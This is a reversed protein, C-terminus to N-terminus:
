RLERHNRGRFAFHERLKLFQTFQEAARVRRAEVLADAFRVGGACAIPIPIDQLAHDLSQILQALEIPFIALVNALCELERKFIFSNMEICYSWAVRIFVIRCSRKSMSSKSDVIFCCCCGVFIIRVNLVTFDYALVQMFALDVASTQTKASALNPIICAFM